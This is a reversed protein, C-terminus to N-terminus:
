HLETEYRIEPVSYLVAIENELKCGRAGQWERAFLAVDAESLKLLSQGLYYIGNKDDFDFVTDLLEYESNDNKYYQVRKFLEFLNNMAERIEDLSRGNMPMSIFLKKKNNM